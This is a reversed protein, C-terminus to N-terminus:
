RNASEKSRRLLRMVLEPVATAAPTRICQTALSSLPTEEPNIEVIQGDAAVADAAWGVIYGFSATTGVVIVLDCRGGDVFAQVRAVARRPLQEGFWVVGPRLRGGCAPCLPVPTLDERPRRRSYDGRECRSVFIDGHIQVIRDDPLRRGDHEARAHLDDVNQTLLLFDTTELGLQVIARHAANPESAAIRERRERYWEWVMAADQDFAHQTALQSPDRSRWYGEAGRFTPIGSEASVGAGTIVLVRGPRRCESLPKVSARLLAVCSGAQSM